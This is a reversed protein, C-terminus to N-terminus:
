ESELRRLTYSKDAEQSKQSGTFDALPVVVQPFHFYDSPNAPM